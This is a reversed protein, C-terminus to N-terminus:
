SLMEVGTSIRVGRVWQGDFLIAGSLELVARGHIDVDALHVQQLRFRPEWRHLATATAAFLLMRTEDNCPHDILEPVLSGFERRMLRSGVPTTLIQTISQRVHEVGQISDGRVSNLGRM